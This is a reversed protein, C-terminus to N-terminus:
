KLGYGPYAAQHSDGKHNGTGEGKDKPIIQEADPVFSIKIYYGAAQEQKGYEAHKGTLPAFIM